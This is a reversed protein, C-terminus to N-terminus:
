TVSFLARYTSFPEKGQVDSYPDTDSCLYVDGYQSETRSMNLFPSLALAAERLFLHLSFVSVQVPFFARCIVNGIYEKPPSKRKEAKVLLSKATSKEDDTSNTEMM